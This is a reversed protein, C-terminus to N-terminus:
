RLERHGALHQGRGIEKGAVLPLHPGIVFRSDIKEAELV